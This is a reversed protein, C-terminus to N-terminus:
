IGIHRYAYAGTNTISHVSAPLFAQGWLQFGASPLLRRRCVVTEPNLGFPQRWVGCASANSRATVIRSECGRIMNDRLQRRQSRPVCLVFFAGGGPGVDHLRRVVHQEPQRCIRPVPQARRRGAASAALRRALLSWTLPVFRCLVCQQQCSAAPEQLAQAFGISVCSGNPLLAQSFPAVGKMATVASSQRWAQAGCAPTAQQPRQLLQLRPRHWAM